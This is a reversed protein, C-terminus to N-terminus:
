SEIKRPKQMCLRQKLIRYLFLPNGIIYRKWLRRPEIFLRALWEFGNDTIWKPGRRLEGSIYDFVAGGSLGVNVDLKSWNEMLWHEQLPMGLGVLLIHPKLTNIRQIVEINEASDPSLNFYGHHTGLVQLSPFSRKLNAAAKDAIEPRGGLFFLSYENKECFECLEGCGIPM